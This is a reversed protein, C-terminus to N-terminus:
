ATGEPRRPPRKAPTSRARGARGQKAVEDAVAMLESLSPTSEATRRLYDMAVETLTGAPIGLFQEIPRWYEPGPTIRGRMWSSVTTKSVRLANAFKAQEGWPLQSADYAVRIREM